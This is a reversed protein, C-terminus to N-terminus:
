RLLTAEGTTKIEQNDHTIATFSYRFTKFSYPKGSPYEGNWGWLTDTPLSDVTSTYLLNGWMDFIELTFATIGTYKAQFLDNIGDENPTFASPFIVLYGKGVRIDQTIEKYCGLANYFRLAVTFTGPTKYRHVIDTTAENEATIELLDSGDGFDWRMKTYLEISTNTFTVDENASILGTQELSRSTYSFEPEGVGTIIPVSIGCGSENLINLIAEDVPNDITLEYTDNGVSTSSVLTGDYYFSFTDSDRDFVKVQLTGPEGVCLSKSLFPGDLLQLTEVAALEYFKTFTIADTNDCSVFSSTISLRYRGAALNNVALLNTGILEYTPAPNEETGPIEREWVIQYPAKGGSVSINIAGNTNGVGCGLPTITETVAVPAVNNSFNFTIPDTICNEADIIRLEYTGESVSIPESGQTVLNNPGNWQYIYFPDGNEDEFPVGGSVLETNPFTAENDCLNLTVNTEGGYAIPQYNAVTFNTFLECGETTTTGTTVQAVIRLTYSGEILKSLTYKGTSNSLSFTSSVASSPTIQVGNLYFKIASTTNLKFSYTAEPNECSPPTLINESISLSSKAITFTKVVTNCGSTNADQVTARYEGFGLGTLNLKGASGPVENWGFVTTTTTQTSPGYKEWRISYPSVINPSLTLLISSSTSEDTVCQESNVQGSVTFTTATNPMNVNLTQTCQNKDTVKVTYNGPTFIDNVTTANTSAVSYGDPGTWEYFYSGSGGTVSVSLSGPEGCNIPTVQTNEDHTVVLEEPANVTLSYGAAPLNNTLCQNSDSIIITHPGEPINQITYDIGTIGATGFSILSGADISYYYPGTGGTVSVKVSGTINPFCSPNLVNDFTATMTEPETIVFAQVVKCQGALGDSVEVRYNGASLGFQSTGSTAFPTGSNNKYWNIVLTASPDSQVSITFSGDSAGNCSLRQIPIAPATYSPPTPSFSTIKLESKSDITRTATASCGAADTITINYLGAPLNTFNAASSSNKTLKSTLVGSSLEYQYPALGGSIATLPINISADSANSCSVQTNTILSADLVMPTPVTLTKTVTAACSSDTIQVSYTAGITLGGFQHAGPKSIPTTTTGNPNTLVFTYPGVGGNPTATLTESCNTALTLGLVAPQSINFAISNVTCIGNTVALTYTGASLGSLALTTATFSPDGAKSWAYTNPAANAQTTATVMAATSSDGVSAFATFGTGATDAKLQIVNATSSISATVALATDANVLNILAGAITATSQGSTVTHTFVTGNVIVSLADATAPTGGVTIETIQQVATNGGSIHSSLAAIAGDSGAHCSVNTIAAAIATNDIVPLPTVTVLVENSFVTSSVGNLVNTYGRRYYTNSTINSPSYSSATAGAIATGWSISGSNPGTGAYWSYATSGGTTGTGLSASAITAGEGACITTDGSISGATVTNVTITAWNTAAECQKGNETKYTVRQFSTTQTLTGPVYTSATATGISIPTTGGDTSYFWQYTLGTLSSGASVTLTGPNGGSNITQNALSGGAIESGISITVSATEAECAASSVTKYLARKYYTTQTLAPPDYNVTNAGGIPNWNSGDTSSFWQLSSYGVTPSGGGTIQAPDAGYCLAGGSYSITGPDLTNIEVKIATTPTYVLTGSVTLTAIRRFYTTQTLTSTSYARETAGSVNTFGSGASLSSQWQFAYYTPYTSAVQETLTITSNACGIIDTDFSGPTPVAAKLIVPTNYIGCTDLNNTITNTATNTAGRVYYTTANLTQTPTYDKATAGDIKSLAPSSDTYTYWQYNVTGKTASADTDSIIPSAVGGKFVVEERDNVKGDHTATTKISGLSVSEGMTIHLENTTKTTCAVGNLTSTTQRRYKVSSSVPPPNYIASNEGTINTWPGFTSGDSRSEQWQHTIITGSPYGSSTDLFTIPDGGPCIFAEDTSGNAFAIGVTANPFRNVSITVPTTEYTTPTTTASYAVRKYQTTQTVVGSGFSLTSSTYTGATVNTWVGSNGAQQWYYSVAESNDTSANATSTLNVPDGLCITTATTGISGPDLTVVTVAVSSSRVTCVISGNSFTMQRQYYRTGSSQILPVVDLGAGTAGAVPTNVSVSNVGSYWQYSVVVSDEDAGSVSLPVSYPSGARVSASGNATGGVLNVATSAAAVEFLALRNNDSSGTATGQVYDLTGTAAATTAIIELGTFRLTDQTNTAIVDFSVELTATNTGVIDVSINDLDGGVVLAVAPTGTFYFGTPLTLSFDQATGLEFDGAATETLDVLSIAYPASPFNVCADVTVNTNSSSLQVQGLATAQGAIFLGAFLVFLRLIPKM